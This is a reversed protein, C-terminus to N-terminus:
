LCCAVATQNLNVVIVCLQAKKAACCLRYLVFANKPNKGVVPGSKLPKRNSNANCFRENLGGNVGLCRPGQPRADTEAGNAAAGEGAQMTAAGFTRPTEVPGTKYLKRYAHKLAKSASPWYNLRTGLSKAALISAVPWFDQM